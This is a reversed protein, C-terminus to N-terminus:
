LYEICHRRGSVGGGGSGVRRPDDGQRLDREEFPHVVKGPPGLHLCVEDGGAAHPNHVDRLRGLGRGTGVVVDDGSVDFPM